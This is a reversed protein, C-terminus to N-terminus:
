SRQINQSITTDDQYINYSGSTLEYDLIDAYAESEAISLSQDLEVSGLYRAQFVKAARATIYKKFIDPLEQFELKRVLTDLTLGSNFVRSQTLTDFFYGDKQILKYGTAVYRIFEPPCPIYGREFDPKLVVGEETNFDWGKAQVERSVNRLISRANIVEVNLDEEITNVPSSGVASLIENVADLETTPTVIM